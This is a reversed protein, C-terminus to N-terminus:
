ISAKNKRASEPAFDNRSRLECDRDRIIAEELNCIKSLFSACLATDDTHVQAPVTTTDRINEGCSSDIKAGTDIRLIERFDTVL